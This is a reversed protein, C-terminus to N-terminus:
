QSFNTREPGEMKGPSSSPTEKRPLFFDRIEESKKRIEAVFMEAEGRSIDPAVGLGGREYAENVVVQVFQRRRAGYEDFKDTPLIGSSDRLAWDEEYWKDHVAIVDVEFVADTGDLQFHATSRKMIKIVGNTQAVANVVSNM